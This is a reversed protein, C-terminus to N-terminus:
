RALDFLVTEEGRRAVLTDYHAVLLDRRTILANVEARTLTRGVAIAVEDHTLSRLTQLLRRDARILDQPKRLGHTLRFARTHDILWLTGDASWLMNGQNRDSNAILEDFIRMVQLQQSTRVRDFATAHESVRAKEDMRVDDVWWTVAADSGQHRRQVSVPVNAIGLLRAVRYGAVNFKYSDRFNLETRGGATFMPKSVDVSQIHADHRTVGDTLTVRISKTTGNGSDRASGSVVRGELLFTEIQAPTLTVPAAPDQGAAAPLQAGVAVLTVLLASRLTM